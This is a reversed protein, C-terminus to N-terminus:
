EKLSFCYLLNGYKIDKYGSSLSLSGTSAVIVYQKGDVFYTSPPGSGAFELQCFFLLM